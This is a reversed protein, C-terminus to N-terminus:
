ENKVIKFSGEIERKCNDSLAPIRKDSIGRRLVEFAELKRDAGAESQVLRAAM